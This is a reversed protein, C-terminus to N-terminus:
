RGATSLDDMVLHLPVETECRPGARGDYSYNKDLVNCPVKDKVNLISV